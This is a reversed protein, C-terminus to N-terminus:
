YFKNTCICLHCDMDGYLVSQMTTRQELPCQFCLWSFLLRTTPTIKKLGGGGKNNQSWRSMIKSGFYRPYFNRARSPTIKVLPYHFLFIGRGRNQCLQCAERRHPFPYCKVWIGIPLAIIKVCIARVEDTHIHIFCNKGYGCPHHLLKSM